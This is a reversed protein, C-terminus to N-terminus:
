YCVSAKKEELLQYKAFRKNVYQQAQAITNEFTSLDQEFLGAFRKEMKFYESVPMSPVDSDLQFASLGEM